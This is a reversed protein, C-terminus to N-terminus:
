AKRKKGKSNLYADLIRQKTAGQARGWEWLVSKERESIKKELDTTIEELTVYTVESEPVEIDLALAIKYLEGYNGGRWAENARKYFDAKEEDGRTKDPHTLVAISRWLQKMEEPGEVPPPADLIVEAASEPAGAVVVTPGKPTEKAVIDDVELTSLVQFFEVEYQRLVEEREELELQLHQIKL